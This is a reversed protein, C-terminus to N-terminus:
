LNGKFDSGLNELDRTERSIVGTVRGLKGVDGIEKLFVGRARGLKGLDGIEQEGL